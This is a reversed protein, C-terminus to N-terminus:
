LLSELGSYTLDSIVTWARMGDDVITGVWYDTAVRSHRHGAASTSLAIGSM